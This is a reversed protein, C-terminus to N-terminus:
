SVRICIYSFINIINILADCLEVINKFYNSSEMM